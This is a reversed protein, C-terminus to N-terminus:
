AKYCQNPTRGEVIGEWFKSGAGLKAVAEFMQVMEENSWAKKTGGAKVNRKTPSTDDQSVPDSSQPSPSTSASSRDYPKSKIDISSKPTKPTRPMTLPVTNIQTSLSSHIFHTFYPIINIKIKVKDTRPSSRHVSGVHCCARQSGSIPSCLVCPPPKFSM